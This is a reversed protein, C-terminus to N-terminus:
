KKRLITSPAMGRSKAGPRHAKRPDIMMIEGNKTGSVKTIIMPFIGNSFKVMVTDNVSAKNGDQMTVEFRNEHQSQPNFNYSVAAHNAKEKEAVRSHVESQKGLLIQLEKPTVKGLKEFQQVARLTLTVGLGKGGALASQKNKLEVIQCTMNRSRPANNPQSLLIFSLKDNVRVIDGPKSRMFETRAADDSSPAPRNPRRQGPRWNIFDTYADENLSEKIIKNIFSKSEGMPKKKIVSYGQSFFEIIQEPTQDTNRALRIVNKLATLGEDNSGKLDKVMKAPLLEAGNGRVLDGNEILAFLVTNSYSRLITKTIPTDASRGLNAKASTLGFKYALFSILWGRNYGSAGSAFKKLAEKGGPSLQSMLFNYSKLLINKDVKDFKGPM